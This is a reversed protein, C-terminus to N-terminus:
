FKLKVGQHPYIFKVKLDNADSLQRKIKRENNAIPKIHTVIIPFNKLAAKGTIRSLAHLEARLWKPTLHGFLQSDPQENPFSVSIYPSVRESFM